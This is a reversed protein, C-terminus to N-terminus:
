RLLFVESLHISTSVQMWSICPFSLCPTIAAILFTFERALKKAGKDLAAKYQLELMDSSTALQIDPLMERIYLSIHNHSERPKAEVVQRQANIYSEILTQPELHALIPGRMTELSLKSAHYSWDHCAWSSISGRLYQPDGKEGCEEPLLKALNNAKLLKRLMLLHDDEFQLKRMATLYEQLASHVFKVFYLQDDIVTATLLGCCSREIIKWSVMRDPDFEQADLDVALIERIEDVEFPDTAHLVWILAETALTKISDPQRNIRDLTDKFAEEAALPLNKVKFRYEAKNIGSVIEAIHLKTM